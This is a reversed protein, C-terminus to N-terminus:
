VGVGGGAPVGGFEFAGAFGTSAPPDNPHSQRVGSLFLLLVLVLGISVRVWTGTVCISESFSEEDPFCAVVYRRSRCPLRATAKPSIDTSRATTSPITRPPPTRPLQRLPNPDIRPLINLTQKTQISLEHNQHKMGGHAYRLSYYFYLIICFSTTHCPFSCPHPSVADFNSMILFYCIFENSLHIGNRM